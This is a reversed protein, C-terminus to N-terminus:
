GVEVIVHNTGHGFNDVIFDEALEYEGFHHVHGNETRVVDDLDSSWIIYDSIFGSM